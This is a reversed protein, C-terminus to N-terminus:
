YEAIRRSAKLPMKKHASLKLNRPADAPNTIERTFHSTGSSPGALRPGLPVTSVLLWEYPVM